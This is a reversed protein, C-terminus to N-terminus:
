KKYVLSGEYEPHEVFGNKKYFNIQEETNGDYGGPEVLINADADQKLVEAVAKQLLYSGIGQGRSNRDGVLARAVWWRNGDIRDISVVSNRTPGLGLRHMISVSQSTSLVTIDKEEITEFILQKLKIM